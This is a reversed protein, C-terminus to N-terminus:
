LLKLLLVAGILSNFRDYSPSRSTFM